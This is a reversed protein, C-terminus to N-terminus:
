DNFFFKDVNFRISINIRKPRYHNLKFQVEKTSDSFKKPHLDEISKLEEVGLKDEVSVSFDDPEIDSKELGALKLVGNLLYNEIELLVKYDIEYSKLKKEMRFVSM